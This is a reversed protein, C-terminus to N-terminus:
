NRSFGKFGTYGHYKSLMPPNQVATGTYTSSIIQNIFPKPPCTHPIPDEWAEVYPLEELCLPCVQPSSVPM